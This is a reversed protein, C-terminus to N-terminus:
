FNGYKTDPTNNYADLYPFGRRGTGANVIPAGKDTGSWADFAYGYQAAAATTDFGRAELFRVKLLREFLIAEYLIVDSPDSANDAFDGVVGKPRVWNRSIYEFHIDLGVPPPQPFIKFVNDVERFSAYITQSVLDRGELYQWEQASLPGLLPVNNARDWGTQNIMYAFDEPLEYTGSDGDKTEIQHERVLGEWAENQLLEYGCTNVLATFQIMAADSSTYANEVKPIGVEVAVQNIIDNATRFRAM